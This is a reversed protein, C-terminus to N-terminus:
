ENEHIRPPLLSRLFDLEAQAAARSTANYAYRQKTYGIVACWKQYPTGWCHVQGSAVSVPCGTCNKSLFLSCLPCNENGKDEATGAVIDRWKAISGRLAALTAHPMENATM